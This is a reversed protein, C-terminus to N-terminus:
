YRARKNTTDGQELIFKSDKCIDKLDDIMGFYNIINIYHGISVTPVGKEIEWLTTRSMNTMKALDDSKINRRLRSKKINNGLNKLINDAKESNVEITKNYKSEDNFYTPKYDSYPIWNPEEFEINITIDRNGVINLIPKYKNILLEEMYKTEYKNSYQCCYIEYNEYDKFKKNHIHQNIRNKLSKDTKGIYIIENNCEIKYIYYEKINKM